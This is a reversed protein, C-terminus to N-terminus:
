LCPISFPGQNWHCYQLLLIDWLIHAISQTQNLKNYKSYTIDNKMIVDGFPVNEANSPKQAPFEGTVPSNGSCLGTLCLKSTKKSRRKFLRNHSCERTQHNSLGDRGNHSWQLTLIESSHNIQGYQELNIWPRQCGHSGQLWHFLEPPYLYSVVIFVVCSFLTWVMRMNMTVHHRWSM